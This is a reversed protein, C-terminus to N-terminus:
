KCRSLFKFAAIYQKGPDGGGLDDIDDAATGLYTFDKGDDKAPFLVDMEFADTDRSDLKVNLVLPSELGDLVCIIQNRVRVVDLVKTTQAAGGNIYEYFVEFRNEGANAPAAAPVKKNITKQISKKVAKSYKRRSIDDPNPIELDIQELIKRGLFRVGRRRAVDGDAPPNGANDYLETATVIGM